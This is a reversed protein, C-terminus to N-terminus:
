HVSWGCERAGVVPGRTLHKLIVFMDTPLHSLVGSMFLSHTGPGHTVGGKNLLYLSLSPIYGSTEMRSVSRLTTTDGLLDKM